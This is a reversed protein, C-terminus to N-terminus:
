VKRVAINNDFRVLQELPTPGTACPYNSGADINSPDAAASVVLLVCWPGPGVAPWTFALPPPDAAGPTPAALMGTASGAVPDLPQWAADDRQWTLDEAWAHYYGRVVGGGAAPGRNRVRVFIRNIGDTHPVDPWIDTHEQYDAQYRPYAGAGGGIYLDFTPDASSLGQAAFSWKIVKNLTGGLLPGFRGNLPDTNIPKQYDATVLATMFGDPTTTPTVTDPPLSGIAHIILYAMYRAAVQAAHQAAVPDPQPPTKGIIEYLRFLTTALIQERDYHDPPNSSAQEDAARTGDWQWEPTTRTDGGHFRLHEEPLRPNQTMLWPFTQYRNADSVRSCPDSLIAALSDGASHAFGLNPGHVRAWLLAHCFEHLVVRVDVASGLVSANGALEPRAGGFLIMALANFTENGMTLAGADGGLGEPDVRIQRTAPFFDNLLNLQAMMRFMADTHYYANVATFSYPEGVPSFIFPTGAPISLPANLPASIDDLTVRESDLRLSLTATLNELPETTPAPNLSQDSPTSGPAFPDAGSLSVPDAVYVSGVAFPHETTAPPFIANFCAALGTRLYLVAGTEVALFVRWNVPIQLDEQRPPTLTFLVEVAAYHTEERLTGSLPPLPLVPQQFVFPPRAARYDGPAGQEVTAVTRKDSEDWPVRARPFYQYYLLRPTGNICPRPGAPDLGLHKALTQPTIEAGAVQTGNPVAEDVVPAPHLTNQGSVVRWTVEGERIVLVSLGAQWIPLGNVTQVYSVVTTGTVEIAPQSVTRQLAPQPDPRFENPVPEYLDLRLDRPYYLRINAQVYEDAVQQATPGGIARAFEQIHEIFANQDNADRVIHVGPANPNIVMVQKNPSDM